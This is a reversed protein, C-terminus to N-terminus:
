NVADILAELDTLDSEDGEDAGFDAAGGERVDDGSEGEYLHQPPEEFTGFRKELAVKDLTEIDAYLGVDEGNLRLYAYGSRPAPADLAGFALYTLAEHAM